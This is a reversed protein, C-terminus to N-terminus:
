LANKILSDITGPNFGDNYLIKGDKGILVVTPFGGIGYKEAVATGGYLTEYPVKNRQNFKEVEQKSDHANIAIFTLGKYKRDLEILKPISEICYSCNKIWFELLVLKGKFQSSNVPESSGLSHLEWSAAAAGVPLPILIKDAPAKFKNTYTSFYWSNETPVQKNIEVNTFAAKSFDSNADSGQIVESLLLNTKDVLLQYIFTRNETIPSFDGLRNITRKYLYLKVLHYERGDISTDALTKLISTDNVIAPIVKRFTVLSNYLYTNSKFDRLGPKTSLNITKDKKNILFSETGNFVQMTEDSNVQYKLGILSDTSTFDVFVDATIKHFYKQSTYVLDLTYNYQLTSADTLKKHIGLLVEIAKSTQPISKVPLLQSTGAFLLVFVPFISKINM